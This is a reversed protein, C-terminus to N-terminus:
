VQDNEVAHLSKPACCGGPASIIDESFLTKSPYSKVDLDVLNSCWLEGSKNRRVRSSDRDIEFIKKRESSIRRWVKFDDSISGFKAHKPRQIKQPAGWNLILMIFNPRSSIMTCFNVGIPRRM